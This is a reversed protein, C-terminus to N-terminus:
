HYGVDASVKGRALGYFMFADDSDPSHALSVKTSVLPVMRDYLAFTSAELSTTYV